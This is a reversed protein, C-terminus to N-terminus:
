LRSYQAFFSCILSRHDTFSRSAGNGHIEIQSREKKNEDRDRRLDCIYFNMTFDRALILDEPDISRQKGAKKLRNAVGTVSISINRSSLFRFSLFLFWRKYANLLLLSEFHKTFFKYFIYIYICM